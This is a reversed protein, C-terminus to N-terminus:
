FADTMCRSWIRLGRHGEWEVPVNMAVLAGFAELARRLALRGNDVLISVLMVVAM